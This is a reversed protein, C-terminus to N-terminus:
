FSHCLALCPADDLMVLSLSNSGGRERNNLGVISRGVTTGIMAGAVVDSAFHARHDMRALGVGTALGYSLMDIWISDYHSAIASGVAFAQTAHGSPFSAKGRFPHFDGAGQDAIPRSRGFAFKLTPTIIGAAVLSSALADTAAHVTNDDERFYGGAYLAAIVCFSYEAGFPEVAKFAKNVSPTDHLVIYKDIPEDLLLGTGVVVAVDGAFWLWHRSNWRGPSTLTIAMDDGLMPLFKRPHTPVAVAPRGSVARNSDTASLPASANDLRPNMTAEPVDPYVPASSASLVFLGWVIIILSRGNM